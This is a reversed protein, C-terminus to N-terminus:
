RVHERLRHLIAGTINVDLDELAFQDDTEAHVAHHVVHQRRGLTEVGAMVERMLTM